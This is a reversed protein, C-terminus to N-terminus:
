SWFCPYSDFQFNSERGCIRLIYPDFSIQNPTNYVMPIKKKFTYFIAKANEFLSSKIFIHVVLTKIKPSASPFGLSFHCKSTTGTSLCLTYQLSPFPAEECLNYAM